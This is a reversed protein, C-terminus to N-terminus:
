LSLISTLSKRVHVLSPSIIIPCGIICHAAHLQTRYLHYAVKGDYRTAEPVSMYVYLLMPRVNTTTSYTVCWWVMSDDIIIHWRWDGGVMFYTTVNFIIRSDFTIHQWLWLRRVLTCLYTQTSIGKSMGSPAIVKTSARVYTIHKHSHISLLEASGGVVFLYLPLSLPLSFM